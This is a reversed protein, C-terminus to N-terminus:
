KKASEKKLWDGFVVPKWEESISNAIQNLFSASATSVGGAILAGSASIDRSIVQYAPIGIGATVIGFIKLTSSVHKKMGSAKAVENHYALIADRDREGEQQLWQRFKGANIRINFVDEAGMTGNNVSARIDPFEVKSKLDTIVKETKNITIEAEELKNGVVQGMVDGLFLDLGKQLSTWIIRNSQVEGILPMEPRFGLKNNTLNNLEKFNINTVIKWEGSSVDDIKCNITPPKGLKMKKYIENVYPQILAECKKNDHMAEKADLVPADYDKSDEDILNEIIAAWLLQRRKSNINLKAKNVILRIFDSQVGKKFQMNWVSFTGENNIATSMFSYYFINIIKNKILEILQDIKNGKAFFEVFQEFEGVTNIQIYIKEYYILSEAFLGVDAPKGLFKLFPSNYEWTEIPVLVSKHDNNIIGAKVVSTYTKERFTQLTTSDINKTARM